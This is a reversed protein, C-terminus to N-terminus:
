FIIYKPTFKVFCAYSKHQFRFIVLSLFWSYRFLHLPVSHEHVPTLTFM